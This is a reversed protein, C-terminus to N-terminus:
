LPPRLCTIREYEVCMCVGWMCVCKAVGVLVVSCM